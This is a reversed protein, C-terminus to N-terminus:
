VRPQTPHIFPLIGWSRGKVFSELLAHKPGNLNPKSCVRKAPQTPWKTKNRPCVGPLSKERRKRGVNEKVLIPQKKWSSTWRPTSCASQAHQASWKRRGRGGPSKGRSSREVRRRAVREKVSSPNWKKQSCGLVRFKCRSIQVTQSFLARRNRKM